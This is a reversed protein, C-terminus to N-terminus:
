SRAKRGISSIPVHFQQANGYSPRPTQAGWAHGYVIEWTALFRGDEARERYASELRRWARPTLLGRRRDSRLNGGGLGRVEQLLSDLGPYRWCVRDVDMVPDRLGAALMADGIDHMDAFDHIHGYGDVEAWADRLETLTDPGLTAYMVVGDPRLVRRIERFLAASDEVWEVLLNTVVIDVSADALPLQRADAAAPRPRRGFLRRGPVEALPGLAFDFGFVTAQPYMRTLRRTLDGSGCGLDIIREPTVRVPALRDTLEAATSAALGQDSSHRPRRRNFAQQIRNPSAAASTM